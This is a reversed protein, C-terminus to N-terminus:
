IGLEIDFSNALEDMIGGTRIVSAEPEFQSWEGQLYLQVHEARWRNYHVTSWPISLGLTFLALLAYGTTLKAAHNPNLTTTLRLGGLSLRHLVFNLRRGRAMTVSAVSLTLMCISTLIAQWDRNINLNKGMSPAIAFIVLVFIVVLMWWFVWSKMFAKNMHKYIESEKAQLNFPMLGYRAKSFKHHVLWATVRPWFILPPLVIWGVVLALLWNTSGFLKVWFHNPIAAIVLTFGLIWVSFWLHRPAVDANFRVGRYTMTRWRFAFSNSLLWPLPVFALVLMFPTLWPNFWFGVAAITIASFAFFRGFLLPFPVLQVDFRQGDLRWHNSLFQVRRRRAWPSYIGLTVLTLCQCVVWLKFYDLTKATFALELLRGEPLTESLADYPLEHEAVDLSEIRDKGWDPHGPYPKTPIPQISPLSLSNKM